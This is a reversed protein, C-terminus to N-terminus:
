RNRRTTRPAKAPRAGQRRNEAARRRDAATRAQVDQAKPEIEETDRTRRGNGDAVQGAEAQAGPDERAAAWFRASQQAEIARLRTAAAQLRTVAEAAVTLRPGEDGVATEADALAESHATMSLDEIQQELIEKEADTAAQEAEQELLMREKHREDEDMQILTKHIKRRGKGILGRSANAM